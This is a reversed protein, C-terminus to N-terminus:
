IMKTRQQQASEVKQNSPRRSGMSAGEGRQVRLQSMSLGQLRIESDYPKICIRINKGNKDESLKTSRDKDALGPSSGIKNLKSSEIKQTNAHHHNM